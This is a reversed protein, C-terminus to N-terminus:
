LGFFCGSRKDISSVIDWFFNRRLTEDEDDVAEVVVEDDGGGSLPVNYVEMLMVPTCIEDSNDISFFTWM